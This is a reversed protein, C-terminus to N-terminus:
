LRNLPCKECIEDLNEEQREQYKCYKDCIEACVSEITEAVENALGM